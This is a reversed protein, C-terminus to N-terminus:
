AAVDAGYVKCEAPDVEVLALNDNPRAEVKFCKGQFWYAKGVEVLYVEQQARKTASITVSNQGLWYLPHGKAKAKEVAEMPCENNEIAYQAVSCPTFLIPMPGYKASNKMLAVKAGRAPIVRRGKYDTPSEYIAYAPFDYLKMCAM